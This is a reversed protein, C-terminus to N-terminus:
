RIAEQIGRQVEIASVPTGESRVLLRYDHMLSTTLVGPEGIGIRRGDVEVVPAIEAATGTLFVEGAAYIDHITFPEEHVDIGRGRAIEIVADRTIGQLIGLASSPTWLTGSRVLFLNDATCEAVYGDHTLMIAEDAAARNAEIRALINPLYNCSKVQGTLSDVTPKRTSATIVKLGRRYLEDPYLRIEDVVVLVTPAPCKRPDLGLDGVGRSIVPRIYADRLSSRRVAEIIVEKLEAPCLPLEIGVTAASKYLRALHQDLRFIRGEYVRIGEFVGDGYLFGHDYPSLRAEDKTTFAGNLYVIASM